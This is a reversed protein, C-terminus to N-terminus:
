ILVEPLADFTYYRATWSMTLEAHDITDDDTAILTIETSNLFISKLETMGSVAQLTAFALRTEIEAAMTDMKDEITQTDGTGPLRLMGVIIISVDREIVSADVDSVPGSAEGDSYLMLYPWIQRRSPVRSEEVCTWTVPAGADLLGAIAERIRQRSHSM